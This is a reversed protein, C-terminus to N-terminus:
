RAGKQERSYGRHTNGECGYNTASHRTNERRIHRKIKVADNRRAAALELACAKYLILNQAMVDGTYFWGGKDNHLIPTRWRMTRWAQFHLKVRVSSGVRHISHLHVTNQAFNAQTSVLFARDNIRKSLSKANSRLWSAFKTAEDDTDCQVSFPTTVMGTQRSMEPTLKEILLQLPIPIVLIWILVRLPIKRQWWHRM